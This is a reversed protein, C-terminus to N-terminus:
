PGNSSGHLLNETIAYFLLCFLFSALSNCPSFWCFILVSIDTFLTLKVFWPHAFKLLRSSPSERRCSTRLQCDVLQQHFSHVQEHHSRYIDVLHLANNPQCKSSSAPWTGWHPWWTLRILAHPIDNCTCDRVMFVPWSLFYRILDVSKSISVTM